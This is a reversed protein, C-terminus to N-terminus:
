EIVAHAFLLLNCVKRDKNIGHFYMKKYEEANVNQIGSFGREILFPEVMGEKIGFKLPEGQQILIIRINKGVELECTGDVVPNLTTIM